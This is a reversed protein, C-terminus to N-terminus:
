LRIYLRLHPNDLDQQARTILSRVTAESDPWGFESLPWLAFSELLRKTNNKNREGWYRHHESDGWSGIPVQYMGSVVNKYGADGMLTALKTSARADSSHYRTQWDRVYDSLQGIAFQKPDYGCWGSDSQFLFDYEVFEVYGGRKVLSRLEKVYSPWRKERLGFAIFRSHIYDFKGQQLEGSKSKSTINKNLNAWELVLNEPEEPLAEWNIDVGCVTSDPFQNAIAIAWHGRGYGCELINKPRTLPAFYLRDEGTTSFFGSIIAHEEELRDEEEDDIPVKYVNQEVSWTQYERGMFETREMEVEIEANEYSDSM